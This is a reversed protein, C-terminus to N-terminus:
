PKADEKGEKLETLILVSHLNTFDVATLVTGSQTLGDASVTMGQAYGIPIGPLFRDSIDSTVLTSDLTFDISSLANDLRLVNQGRNELSGTVICTRGGNKTMASVRVGDEVITTVVAYNLGVQSVYGVLGDKSVINMNVKVGDVSGKNITFREFVNTGDNGIIEAAESEYSGLRKKMALLARLEQNEIRISQLEERERLLADYDEQLAELQSRAEDLTLKEQESKFLFGGIDNIGQQFPVIVAGLITAPALATDQRFYQVSLSLVCLVTVAIVAAKSTLHARIHTQFFEKVRQFLSM